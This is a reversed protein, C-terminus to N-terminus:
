PMYYRVTVVVVGATFSTADTQSASIYGPNSLTTGILAGTGTASAPVTSAATFVTREGALDFIALPAAALFGNYDLETTRDLRTLGVDIATGTAGATKTMLEISQIRAGSPVFTQDSQIVEVQTLGALTITVEIERILGDGEYEGATNPTTKTTGYKHYLGDADMWTGM